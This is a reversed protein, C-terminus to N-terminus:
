VSTTPQWAMVTFGAVTGAPVAPVAYECTNVCVPPLPVIVHDSVPVSGVPRVNLAAVAVSDPVGVCVPVNEM